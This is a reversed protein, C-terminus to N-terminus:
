MKLANGATQLGRIEIKKERRLLMGGSRKLVRWGDTGIKSSFGSDRGSKLRSLLIGLIGITCM